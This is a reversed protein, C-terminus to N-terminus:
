EGVRQDTLCFATFKEPNHNDAVGIPDWSWGVSLPKGNCQFLEYRGLFLKRIDGARPPMDRGVSLWKMGSWPFAFELTLGKSVRSTDNLVGDIKVATKLGPFDWDLFAWRNGRPNIGKWFFEDTRDYNGGFVRADHAFVDFEPQQRFVPNNQYADKWIYMVEYRNNLANVQLEYYSDGGDIFIEFDNEFWIYGDRQTIHATPYPEQAWMGVYLYDDDWLLAARTDYIGPTGGVTDVFRPSKEAALWEPKTLDGDITLPKATRKIQYM